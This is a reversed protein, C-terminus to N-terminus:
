INLLARMVRLNKRRRRQGSERRFEMELAQTLDKKGKKEPKRKADKTSSQERTHSISDM